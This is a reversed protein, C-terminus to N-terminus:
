LKNYGSKHVKSVFDACACSHCHFLVFDIVTDKGVIELFLNTANTGTEVSIVNWMDFSRRRRLLRELFLDVIDFCAEISFM